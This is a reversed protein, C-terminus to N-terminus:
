QDRDQALHIWDVGEWGPEGVDIKVNIVIKFGSVGLQGKGDATGLFSRYANIKNEVCTVHRM